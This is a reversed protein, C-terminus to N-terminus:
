VKPKNNRRALLVGLAIMMGIFYVVACVIVVIIVVVVAALAYSAATRIRIPNASTCLTFVLESDPLSDLHMAYGGDTAEFNAYHSQDILYSDTNIRIDLDSFSGWKSAPSLLYTFTYTNPSYDADITPFMPATVKNIVTSDAPFDVDYEYWCMLSNYFDMKHLGLTQRDAFSSDIIEVAANHWDVRSVGNNEDYRRYIFDDYTLQEVITKAVKGSTPVRFRNDTYFSIRDEVNIEEGFVYLEYTEVNRVYEFLGSHGNPGYSTWGGLDSAVQLGDHDVFVYANSAELSVIYRYVPLAKDIFNSEAYDDRLRAIGADIDFIGGAYALTYTHRLRTEVPAGDVTINDSKYYSGLEGNWIYDPMTGFPFVLTAHVDYDEPNFFTYEATVTNAYEAPDSENLDHQNINADLDFTLQEHRVTVPCDTLVVAGSGTSGYYFSPASNASARRPATLGLVGCLGIIASLASLVFKKSKKM